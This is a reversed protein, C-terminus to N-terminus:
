ARGARTPANGDLSLRRISFTPPLTSAREQPIPKRRHQYDFSFRELPRQLDSNSKKLGACCSLPPLLQTTIERHKKLDASSAQKKKRGKKERDLLSREPPRPPPPDKLTNPGRAPILIPGTNETKKRNKRSMNSQIRRKNEQRPAARARRGQHRLIPQRPPLFPIRPDAM